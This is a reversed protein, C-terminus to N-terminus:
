LPAWKLEKTEHLFRQSQWRLQLWIAFCLKRDPTSVSHDWFASGNAQSWWSVAWLTWRSWGPAHVIVLPLSPSPTQLNSDQRQLVPMSCDGLEIRRQGAGKALASSNLRVLQPIASGAGPQVSRESVNMLSANSLSLWQGGESLSEGEGRLKNFDCPILKATWLFALYNLWVLSPTLHIVRIVNVSSPSSSLVTLPLWQPQAPLLLKSQKSIACNIRSEYPWLLCFIVDSEDWFFFCM